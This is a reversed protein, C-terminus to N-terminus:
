VAYYGPISLTRKPVGLSQPLSLSLPLPRLSKPPPLLRLSQPPCLVCAKPTFASSMPKSGSASAHGRFLGALSAWSLYVDMLYVGILHVSMLHVGM